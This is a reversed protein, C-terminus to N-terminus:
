LAVWFRALRVSDVAGGGGPIWRVGLKTPRNLHSSEQTIAYGAQFGNLWWPESLLYQTVNIPYTDTGAGLLDTATMVVVLNPPTVIVPFAPDTRVLQAVATGGGGGRMRVLDIAVVRGGAEGGLRPYMEVADVGADSHSREYTNALPWKTLDAAVADVGMVDYAVLGRGTPMRHDRVNTNVLATAAAEIRVAAWRVYGATPAPEAPTAGPTGQVVSKQCRIRRTPVQAVSSKARTTADEFHRAETSADVEDLKICVVDIRPNTPDAAAFTTQLELAELYYSLFSPDSGDVAGIIFGIPGGLNDLTLGTAHVKPAGGTGWSYCYNQGLSSFSGDPIAAARLTDFFQSRLYRSIAAIDEAYVAEGDSTFVHKFLQTM